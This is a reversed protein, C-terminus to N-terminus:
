RPRSCSRSSRRLGAAAEGARRPQVPEAPLEARRVDGEGRGDRPDIAVLAAAPGTRSQAPRKEIAARAKLQLDLDITTTVKLGGGFVRGAGYRAVLEDKVYNVFYPAPGQTGPFGSTRPCPCRRGQGRARFQRRTIKGQELMM